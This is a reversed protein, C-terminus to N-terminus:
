IGVEESIQELSKHRTEVGMTTIIIALIVVVVGLGIFVATPGYNSLLWAVGYPSFIASIRGVANAVGMGRLRAETPWMEPVYVSCALCVYIYIVVTLIVGLIVILTESRQLSYIYGLVGIFLLLFSSMSRRPFKDVTRSAIFVGIPAGLMILTMMGMSKTVSIGSQVFITPVWNVITYVLTNMGVLVASAVITRRLLVGRFLSWFAIKKVVPPTGTSDAVAPPLKIGKEREIDAEVQSVIKDAKDYEGRSEHWRPSEPLNHRLFWVIIALVGGIIFMTRWGFAPIVFYSVLLAVPPACNALLSLLSTWKGRVRAPVFESFTGFGVVLEAGLGIGMVGRLIILTIMDTAFGAALSAIGFILLNLQYAFKRGLHDGALGALISGIFLGIMTSSIFAANLYNTSWGNKILESLIAGGMYNDFGDVFMGLGILLLLQYHWKAIPLRDLRAGINGNENM